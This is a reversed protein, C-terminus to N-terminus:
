SYFNITESIKLTARANVVAVVLTRKVTFLTQFYYVIENGPEDNVTNSERYHLFLLAKTLKKYM